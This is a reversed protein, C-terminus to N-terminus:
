KNIKFSFSETVKSAVPTIVLGTDPCVVNSKLAKLFAEREKKKNELEVWTVDTSYDYTTRNVKSVSYGDLNITKEPYKSLESELAAKVADDKMIKDFTDAIFKLRAYIDPVFNDGALIEAKMKEIFVAQERKTEPLISITKLTTEMETQNLSHKVFNDYDALYNLDDFLNEM